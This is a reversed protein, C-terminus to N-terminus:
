EAAKVVIGYSTCVHEAILLKLHRDSSYPPMDVWHDNPLSGVTFDLTIEHGADELRRGIEEFDRRRFLVTGGETLTEDNSSLNFETTHVAIGGPKLCQMANVVYEIGLEISGLHEFACSSWLFDYGTLDNPIDNMDVARFSCNAEFLDDPCIGRTNLAEMGAAHQNTDIWGLELARDPDIDTALVEAGRSVFLSALPELGVAFGLGSRGPELMGREGLAEAIYCFEWLKRHLREPQEALQVAWRRFRESELQEQTCMRSELPPYTKMPKAVATSPTTTTM